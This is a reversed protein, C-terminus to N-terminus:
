ELFKKSGHPAFRGINAKPSRRDRTSEDMPLFGANGSAFSVMAMGRHRFHATVEIEDIGYFEEIMPNRLSAPKTFTDIQASSFFVVVQSPDSLATQRMLTGKGRFGAGLLANYGIGIYGNKYKPKFAKGGLAFSTDPRFGKPVYNALPGKTPDFNRQGEPRSESTSTEFGYWYTTGAGDAADSKWPWFTYNNDGLYAMGGAALQRINNASVALSSSAYVQKASVFGIAGLVALITICALLEVLTFGHPQNVFAVANHINSSRLFSGNSVREGDHDHMLDVQLLESHNNGLM